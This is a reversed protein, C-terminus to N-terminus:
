LLMRLASFVTLVLVLRFFVKDSVKKIVKIGVFIGLVIMPIQVLNFSLTQTDIFGLHYSFPLKFVNVLLFFWANTGIFEVKDMRLALLYIAAVPGAANAMMTTVGVLFGAFWAFVKGEPIKDKAIWGKKNMIMLVVLALIMWGVLPKFMTDDVEGMALYGVVIGLITPPFLPVLRKWDAHRHYYIVACIDAVVLMPLLVGTSQRALFLEAMLPVTLLGIGPIGAKSSGVLLGIMLAFCWQLESFDPLSM